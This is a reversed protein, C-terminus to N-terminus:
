LSRWKWCWHLRLLWLSPLWQLRLWLLWVRLGTNASSTNRSSAEEGRITQCCKTSCCKTVHCNTALILDNSTVAVKTRFTVFCPRRIKQFQIYIKMLSETHQFSYWATHIHDLFCWIMVFIYVDQWARPNRKFNNTNRDHDCNDVLDTCLQDLKIQHKLKFSHM